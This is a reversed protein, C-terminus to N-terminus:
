GNEIPLSTTDPIIGMQRLLDAADWYSRWEKVKGGELRWVLAVRVSMHKGTPPLNLYPGRQTGGFVGEFVVYDGYAFINEETYYQDPFATWAMGWAASVGAHGLILGRVPIIDLVCDETFYSVGKEIDHSRMVDLLEKVIGLNRESSM